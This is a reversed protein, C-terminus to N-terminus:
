AGARRPSTFGWVSHARFFLPALFGLSMLCMMSRTFSTICLSKTVAFLSSGSLSTPIAMDLLFM